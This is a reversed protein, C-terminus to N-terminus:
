NNKPIKKFFNQISTNKEQLSNKLDSKSSNSDSYNRKKLQKNVLNFSKGKEKSLNANKLFERNYYNFNFHSIKLNYNEKNGNKLIINLENLIDNKFQEIKENLYIKVKQFIQNNNKSLYNNVISFNITNEIQNNNENIFIKKEFKTNKFEIKNNTSSLENLEKKISSNFLDLMSNIFINNEKQKSYSLSNYEKIMEEFYINNVIGDNNEIQNKNEFSM